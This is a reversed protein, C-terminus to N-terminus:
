RFCNNCKAIHMRGTDLAKDMAEGLNKYYGFWHTETTAIVVGPDRQPWCKGDIHIVVRDDQPKRHECVLYKM